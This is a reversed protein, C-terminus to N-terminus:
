LSVGHSGGAKWRLRGGVKRPKLFTQVFEENYAEFYEPKIGRVLRGAIRRVSSSSM